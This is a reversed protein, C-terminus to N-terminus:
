QFIILSLGVIVKLGVSTIFTFKSESWNPFYQGTDIIWARGSLLEALGLGVLIWGLIIM